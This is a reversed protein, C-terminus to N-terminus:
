VVVRADVIRTRSLTIRVQEVSDAMSGLETFPWRTWQIPVEVECVQSLQRRVLDVPAIPVKLLM